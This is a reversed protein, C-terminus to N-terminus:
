GRRASRALTLPFTALEAVYAPSADAVGGGLIATLGLKLDVPNGTGANFRWYARLGSEGGTLPASHTARIDTERRPGLFGAVVVALLLGTRRPM